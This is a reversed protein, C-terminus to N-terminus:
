SKTDLPNRASIAVQRIRNHELKNTMASRAQSQRVEERAFDVAWLGRAVERSRSKARHDVIDGRMM